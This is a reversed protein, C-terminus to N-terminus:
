KEKADREAKRIALAASQAAIVTKTGFFFGVVLGVIQHLEPPVTRGVVLLYLWAGVVMVSLVSQMIASSKFLDTLNAMTERFLSVKVDQNSM